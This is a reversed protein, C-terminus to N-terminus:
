DRRRRRLLAMWGVLVVVASAPEPVNFVYDNQQWFTDVPVRVYQGTGGGGGGPGPWGDQCIFWEDQGNNQFGPNLDIYGVGVVTHPDTTLDWTQYTEIQQMPFNQVTVNGLFVQPNVWKDFSVLAPRGADIEATYNAWMVPNAPLVDIGIQTNPYAVKAIATLGPDVWAGTAYNLMGPGIQILPTGGAGPPWQTLPNVWGDTGMHWGMEIQGDNFLGQQWTNANGAYGPGAPMVQRDTLGVCGMVDEWYGMLNGGATPSCWSPYGGVGYNGPQNWDPVNLILNGPLQGLAAPAAWATLFAVTAVLAARKRRM